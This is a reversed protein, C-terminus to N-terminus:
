EVGKGTLQLEATGGEPMSRHKMLRALRKGEGRKEIFIATKTAHDMAMGGLPRLNGTEIEMYVQNTVVVPIRHRRAMEQLEGLQAALARRVPRNDDGEFAARYLSTASDLILLGFEKGAIKTADKISSHQQELNLPEFVVIKAGIEKAGEGAIQRFREVSFGETDIFIVKLGRGVAGVAAQLVITTKGTGAEGYIQTIIGPEYGGGLLRDLGECGSSLREQM